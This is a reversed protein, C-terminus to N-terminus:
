KEKKKFIKEEQITKGLVFNEFKNADLQDYKETVIKKVRATDAVIERKANIITTLIEKKKM